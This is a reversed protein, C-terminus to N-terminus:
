CPSRALSPALSPPLSNCQHLTCRIKSRAGYCVPASVRARASPLRQGYGQRFFPSSLFFYPLSPHPSTCNTTLLPKIITPALCSATQLFKVLASAELSRAATLRDSSAQLQRPRVECAEDIGQLVRVARRSWM